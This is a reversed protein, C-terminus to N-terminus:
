AHCREKVDALGAWTNDGPRFLMTPKVEAGDRLGLTRAAPRTVNKQIYRLHIEASSHGCAGQWNEFVHAHCDVIMASTYASVAFPEVWGGDHGPKDRGDV